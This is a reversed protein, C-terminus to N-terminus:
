QPPGIIHFSSFFRRCTTRDLEYNIFNARCQLDYIQGNKVLTRELTHVYGAPTANREWAETEVVSNSLRQIKVIYWGRKKAAAKVKREYTPALTNPFSNSPISPLEQFGISLMLTDTDARYMHSLSGVKGAISKDRFEDHKPKSPFDVTFDKYPGTITGWQTESPQAAKLVKPKKVKNVLFVNLRSGDKDPDTIGIWNAFLTVSEGKHIEKDFYPLLVDQVPLWFNISDEIFLMETSFKKAFEPTGVSEMYFAIFRQKAALTPRSRGTYTANARIPDLGVDMGKDNADALNSHAKIISSLKGPKYRAWTDDGSQQAAAHATFLFFTLLFHIIHKNM